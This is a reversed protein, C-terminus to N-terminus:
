AEIEQFGSAEENEEQEDLEVFKTVEKLFIMKVLGTPGSRNKAVIFNTVNEKPRDIREAEEETTARDLLVVIDADQEIAGSERLDSLQPQKARRQESMRTLQSLAIVPVGLDKAMLKINRSIESVENARSDYNKGPASSMLQLYDIIILGNQKGHLIRRAKARIATATNDTADDIVIDLKSLDSTTGMLREMEGQQFKGTRIHQLPILSNSSAFRPFIENAGMELSFLAVSAGARASQLALNLAFSTKGVSPRAGIVVMQGPRLGMLYGDLRTFGTDVGLDKGGNKIQEELDRTFEALGEKMSTTGTKIERDGVDFVLEEARDILSKTDEPLELAAHAMENAALILDRSTRHRQLISIHHEWSSAVLSYQAIEALYSPGGAQDLKKHSGLYDAVSITDLPLGKDFMERFAEFLVRNRPIYFDKSELLILCDQLANSDLMMSALITREAEEDKPM